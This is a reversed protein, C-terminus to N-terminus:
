RGGRAKRLSEGHVAAQFQSLQERSFGPVDGHAAAYPDIEIRDRDVLGVLVITLLVLLACVTVCCAIIIDGPEIGADFAVSLMVM